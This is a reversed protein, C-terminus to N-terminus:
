TATFSSATSATISSPSSTGFLQTFLHMALESLGITAPVPDLTACALLKHFTPIEAEGVLHAIDLTSCGIPIPTNDTKTFQQQKGSVGPSAHDCSRESRNAVPKRM